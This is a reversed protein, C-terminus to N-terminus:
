SLPIVLTVTVGRGDSEVLLDGSMKNMLTKAIYLGLGNGDKDTDRWDKGRYFKNTILDIESPSVGPGHDVIQMELYKEAIQFHIDIQTDAYKYSNSIINGIVQSMRKRDINILVDPIDDMVVYDKDDAVKVIESLVKSEEDRCNVKFEGLDDLTSAFLDAILSDIQEAKDYIGKVDTNLASIERRTFSLIDTEAAESIDTTETKVSLRMQMLEATLKIGTVPTKLDHSLSAVLEREKKQLKLERKKTEALEERMIDFSESFAGFINDKDMELPEDLKGQAVKTAFEKMNQFPTILNMRIHMGYLLMGAGVLLLLIAFAFTIYGTMRIIGATPDDLLIVTGWVKGGDSLYSYPYRKQIAIGVSLSGTDSEDPVHTYLRQGESGLIVFEADIDALASLDGRNQEATKVIHNLIIISQRSVDTANMFGLRTILIFSLIAIAILTLAIGAMKTYKKM